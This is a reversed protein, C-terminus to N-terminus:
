NNYTSLRKNNNLKNQTLLFKFIVCSGMTTTLLSIVTPVCPIWGGKTLLIFCLGYVSYILIANSIILLLFQKNEGTQYSIGLVALGELLSWGWIWLTDELPNWTWILPQKGEVTNIIQSIMEAQLFVGPLQDTALVGQSYPTLYRDDITDKGILVIKDKIDELTLENNFVQTLSYVRVIDTLYNRYPRYKLMIQIGGTVDSQPHHYGGRHRQLPTLKVKGIQIFDDNDTDKRSLNYKQLLYNEAVRLSFSVIRKSKCPFRSDVGKSLIHRRFIGDLDPVPDDFGIKEKTVEDPASIDKQNDSKTQCTAIINGQQLSTKLHPYKSSISGERTLNLGIFSPKLSNLKELLRDLNQDSLTRSGQGTEESPQKLRELDDPTINIVVISQELNEIPKQRMLYDYVKLEWNQLNGTWRMGIVTGTCLVTTVGIIGLRQWFSLKPKEQKLDNWNLGKEYKTSTLVSPNQFLKPLWSVCPYINELDYLRKKAEKVAIDLYKGKEAFEELLYELFKQAAQDPIREQMVIIAPMQLNSLEQALGLGDCSNFIAIKLGKEIAKELAFKLDKITLFDKENIYFKGRKKDIDSSSHGAFVLISYKQKSLENSIQERSSAILHVIEADELKEQLIELDAQVNIDSSEGLIVLIRVKKYNQNCSSQYPNHSPIHFSIAAENFLTFFDLFELPLQLFFPNQTQLIFSINENKKLHLLIGDRIPKFNEGSSNFWQNLTNQLEQASDSLSINTIEGAIEELKRPNSITQGHYTLYWENYQQYISPNAPLKGDIDDGIFHEGNKIRLTVSFGNEFDGAGIKLIAVIKTM